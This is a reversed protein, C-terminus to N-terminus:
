SRLQVFAFLQPLASAYQVARHQLAPQESNRRPKTALSSDMQCADQPHLEFNSGSLPLV